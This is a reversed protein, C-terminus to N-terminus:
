DFLLRQQPDLPQLFNESGTFRIQHEKLIQRKRHPSSLHEANHAFRPRALTGQQVDEASKIAGGCTVYVAGV